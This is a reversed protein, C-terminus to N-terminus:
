HEHEGENTLMSMLYYSGNIVVKADHHLEQLPTIETFGNDTIGRKVQIREFSFNDASKHAHEAEKHTEGGTHIHEAEKHQAAEIFIYDNGGFSIIASEPISPVTNNEIAINATINMGEILGSKDGTVTAHVPISKSEGEFASGIAFIKASYQKGPLNTLSVDVTQGNKIKSLDQEYIFLDIHLQSNDVVDMIEDSPQVTKGINIDIHSINGNIPSKINVSSSINEANLSESNINLLSLQKKLANNKATLSNFNSETQQYVKQSSVSKESLEKQRKLEASAFTLQAQTELFDQQLKIFDPNVLTALTQGKSVIDGEQVLISQVTGGLPSSVSAKNQPPVKLFGSARLKGTLNKQEISGTQVKISNYQQRTLTVTSEEHHEEAAVDEKKPENGCSSIILAIAITFILKISNMNQMILKIKKM